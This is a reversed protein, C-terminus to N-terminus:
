DLLLPAVANDVIDRARFIRSRVTGIPCRMAKAIEDYSMGEIERLIIAEQLEDPLAQIVRFVTKEIEDRLLLHEPSAIEKFNGLDFLEALPADIDTDPPRRERAVLYNKATNVAIRYLWSYFASDGRFDDIGRYAKIFSEQVVDYVEHSDKVYRGVLNEIKHQYKSVLLNFAMNDGEQVRRVLVQDTLAISTEPGNQPSRHPM